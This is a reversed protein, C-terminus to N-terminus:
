QQSTIFHLSPYQQSLSFHNSNLSNSFHGRGFEAYVFGCFMLIICAIITALVCWASFTKKDM